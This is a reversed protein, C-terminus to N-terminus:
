YPGARGYEGQAQLLYGLNNLSLALDPHGPPYREAPYLQRSMALAQEYYPRAGAYDGQEKLLGGLSNLSLALDPHDQPLAKRRLALAERDPYRDYPVQASAAMTLMLFLAIRKM